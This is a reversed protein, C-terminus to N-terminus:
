GPNVVSYNKEYWRKLQDILPSFKPLPSRAKINIDPLYPDRLYVPDDGEERATLWAGLAEEFSIRKNKGKNVALFRSFCTVLDQAMADPAPSGDDANIRYGGSPMSSATDYTDPRGVRLVRHEGNQVRAM